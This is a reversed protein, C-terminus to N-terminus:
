KAADLAQQSIFEIAISCDQENQLTVISEGSHAIMEVTIKGGSFSREAAGILVTGTENTLNKTGFSSAKGAREAKTKGSPSDIPTFKGYSSELQGLINQM